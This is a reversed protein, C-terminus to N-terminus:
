KKHNDEKKMFFVMAGCMVTCGILPAAAVLGVVGIAPVFRLLVIIVILVIGVVWPNWCKKCSSLFNKMFM